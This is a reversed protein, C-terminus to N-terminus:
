CEDDSAGPVVVELYWDSYYGQRFEHLKPSEEITLIHQGDIGRVDGQVVHGPRFWIQGLNRTSCGEVIEDEVDLGPGGGDVYVFVADKSRNEVIVQYWADGPRAIFFLAVIVAILLLASLYGYLLISRIM